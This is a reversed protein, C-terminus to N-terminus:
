NNSKKQAEPSGGFFSSVGSAIKKGFEQHAKVWFALLSDSKGTANPSGNSQPSGGAPAAPTSSSPNPAVTNTTPRVAPRASPQSSGSNSPKNVITGAAPVLGQPRVFTDAAGTGSAAVPKVADIKKADVPATSTAQPAASGEPKKPQDPTTQGNNTSAGPTGTVATAGNPATTKQPETGSTTGAAPKKSEAEGAGAAEKSPACAGADEDTKISDVSADSKSALVGVLKPDQDASGFQLTLTSSNAPADKGASASLTLTAMSIKLGTAANPIEAPSSQLQNAATSVLKTGFLRSSIQGYTTISYSSQVEEAAVAASTEIARVNDAGFVYNKVTAFKECQAAVGPNKIEQPVIKVPYLFSVLGVTFKKDSSQVVAAIGQCQKDLCRAVVTGVPAPAGTAMLNVPNVKKTDAPQAEVVTELINDAARIKFQNPKALGGERLVSLTKNGATAQGAIIEAVTKSLTAGGLDDKLIQNLGAEARVIDAEVAALGVPRMAKDGSKTMVLKAATVDSPVSWANAEGGVTADPAPNTGRGANTSGGAGAGGGPIGGKNTADTAATDVKPNQPRQRTGCSVLLGVTALFVVIRAAQKGYM